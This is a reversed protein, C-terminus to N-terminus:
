KARLLAGIASNKRIEDRGMACYTKPDTEPGYTALLEMGKARMRAKEKGSQVYALIEKDSYGLDNATSRLGWLISIGKMERAALSACEERLVHAVAVAFLPDEIEPVDRLSPKASAMGGCVSLVGVFACAMRGMAFARTKVLAFIM